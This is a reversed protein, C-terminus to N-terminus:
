EEMRAGCNPCFNNWHNKAGCISCQYEEAWYENMDGTDIWKGQPREEEYSNCDVVNTFQADFLEFLYNCMKNHLCKVRDCETHSM